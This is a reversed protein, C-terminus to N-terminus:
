AASRNIDVTGDAITEIRTVRFGNSGNTQTLSLGSSISRVVNTLPRASWAAEEEFEPFRLKPVFPSPNDATM